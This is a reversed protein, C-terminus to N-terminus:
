MYVKKYWKCFLFLSYVHQKFHGQKGEEYLFIIFENNFIGLQRNVDLMLTLIEKGYGDYLWEIFPSSFGKKQRDIISDPLYNRAIKKLIEKNTHGIKISSKVGLLYEVLHHDLFPARLELSHAMSMRDVKTMLIEPIWISFDIYSLWQVPPYSSAYPHLPSPIKKSSLQQLQGQSFTEGSSQYVQEGNLRRHNYEWERTLNFAEEAKPQTDYYKLMSFYKDYGLFSEDSGEGSLCVKFGEAHIKESLLYTPITASDAMPEDLHELIKDITDLYDNRGIRYEHHTTGLYESANKAFDLECYHTHEDYGISFTHIKHKSKKVYLATIFSSDLGGSLLTAVEVDSVLRKDVAEHLLQDVDAIIEKENTHSIQIDALSYYSRVKLVGDQFLLYSSAPLKKVGQYFTNDGQPSQFALYQWLAVENFAPLKNLMKLVAKIESAFYFMDEEQFYYFPKKGFRDRACFFLEKKQDYICFAFMGELENLFETGFKQYMRILVESDSATKCPLDYKKILAKYNYIEGNFVLHIDDFLMPQNAEANLDIISLRCHGFFNNNILRFEQNDYGRHKISYLVLKHNFDNRNSGVIGCM